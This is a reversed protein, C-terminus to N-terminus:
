KEKGNKKGIKAEIKQIKGAFELLKQQSKYNKMEKKLEKILDIYSKELEYKCTLCVAIADAVDRAGKGFSNFDVEAYRSSIFNYTEEKEAKHNGLVCKRITPVAIDLMMFGNCYFLHEVIGHIKAITLLTAVTTKMGYQIPQKEKGFLCNVPTLQYADSWKNFYIKIDSAQRYIKDDKTYSINVSELIKDLEFDYLAMGTSSSSLDLGVAYRIDKIDEISDFQEFLISM